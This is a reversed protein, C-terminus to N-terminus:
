RVGGAYDHLAVLTDHLVALQKTALHHLTSPTFDAAAIQTGLLELERSLKASALLADAVQGSTLSTEM